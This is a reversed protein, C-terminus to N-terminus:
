NESTIRGSKRDISRSSEYDGTQEMFDESSTVFLPPLTKRYNQATEHLESARIAAIVREYDAQNQYSWMAMIETKSENVWRGVLQAGNTLQNPLLYTHFFHNFTDYMEPKITYMKRRFIM